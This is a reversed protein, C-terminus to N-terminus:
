HFLKKEDNCNESEGQHMELLLRVSILRRVLIVSGHRDSVAVRAVFAFPDREGMVGVPNATMTDYGSLGVSFTFLAMLLGPTEIAMLPATRAVVQRNRIEATVILGLAVAAIEAHQMREFGLVVRLTAEAAVILFVAGLAVRFKRASCNLKQRVAALEAVDLQCWAPWGMFVEISGLARGAVGVAQHGSMLPGSFMGAFGASVKLSALGAVIITIDAHLAVTGPGSELDIRM